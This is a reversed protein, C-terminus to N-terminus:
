YSHEIGIATIAGVIAGQTWRWMATRWDYTAIDHFSRWAKFAIYDVRAAAVMGALAGRVVPLRLLYLTHDWTM